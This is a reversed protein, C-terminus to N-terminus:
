IVCNIVISLCMGTKTEETKKTKNCIYKIGSSSIAVIHIHAKSSLWEYKPVKKNVHISKLGVM